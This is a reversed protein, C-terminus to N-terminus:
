ISLEVSFCTLVTYLSGFRLWTFQIKDLTGDISRLPTLQTEACEDIIIKHQCINHIRPPLGIPHHLVNGVEEPEVMGSANHPSVSVYEHFQVPNASNVLIRKM